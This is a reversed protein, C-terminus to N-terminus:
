CSTTTSMSSPSAVPKSASALADLRPWRPSRLTPADRRVLVDIDGTVVLESADRAYFNIGGVGVVVFAVDAECLAILTEAFPDAITSM